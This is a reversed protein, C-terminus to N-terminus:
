FDLLKIVYKAINREKGKYPFSHIHIAPNFNLEIIGYESNEDEFNDIMMDVGCIKANVANACDVAIKKFRDFIIDTYDISDGGTSINSNDRLYVIEKERPIYDFNLGKQKLFLSANEDLNIKELPTKYGKGRLSDENKKEVLKRISDKGNGEVNAPVRQLIGVVEGDIVLFRYENGKIFEELLVTDDHKFAIDFAMVIDQESTGDKFISVGLGFNTSKPKIVIPKNKYEGAISYIEDKNSVEIGKPVRINHRELVKKTVTKNEMIMVSVYSDKSTKTAQKVYETKDGKKLMIFNDNKDLVEVKIGNKIAERILVQTSLELNEHGELKFRNKYAEEKYKKALEMHINIYGNKEVLEKIKYAYTLKPDDVKAKFRSILDEKQLDLYNNMFLIKNFIQDAFDIKSIEKGDKFLNVDKLGKLAIRKQNVTAEQQWNPYDTEEETLLFLNFVNLFELDELAFGSKYFPNVDISRFELYDIGDKQLSNLFKKNDKPKLRVQSYLEKNNNLLKDKVFGNISNIYESVSDYSPYLEKKNKYGYDTNRLSLAADNKYLGDYIYCVEELCEDNYSMHMISSSGLLYIVLWRYRLYNRAVKLYLADKFDRFSTHMDGSQYLKKLMKESFSFNYHIGSILQKKGGYKKFLGERYQRAETGEGDSEFEAIPINEDDEVPMPMSQPWIYENGIEMSVIDFLANLFDYTEKPSNLPPTIVEIQSESFDTTIYPNQIKNGFVQPHKTQSLKGDVTTRLGEREVGFNGSLLEKPTLLSKLKKYLYM